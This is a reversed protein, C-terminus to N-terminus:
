PFSRARAEAAGGSHFDQVLLGLGRRPVLEAGGAVFLKEAVAGVALIASQPPNIIATFEDINMMGLNGGNGVM